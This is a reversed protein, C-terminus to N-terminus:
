IKNGIEPLNKFVNVSIYIKYGIGNVDVVVCKDTGYEIKGEIFSIM